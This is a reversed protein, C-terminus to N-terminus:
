NFYITDDALEAEAAEAALRDAERRTQKAEIVKVWRRADAEMDEYGTSRKFAFLASNEFKIGKKNRTIGLLLWARGPNDLDGKKIAYRIYKEANKWDEEQMYTQGLRLFLGGDESMEAAKKLPPIAKTWERASLWANALQEWNKEEDEIREAELEKELILAAKYPVEYYLYLQAIRLLESHKELMDKSYMIQQIYFSDDERKLEAYLAALQRYYTKKDPFRYVMAELLPLSEEYRDDFLLISLYIQYWNERPEAAQLVAIEAHPEAKRYFQREELSDKPTESAFYLYIQALLAHASPGPPNGMAEANDFWELLESLGKDWQDIALYLQAIGFQLDLQAQPELANYSLAEKLYKMSQPYDEKEAFVYGKLRVITAKEFDRLDPNRLLNNLIKLAKDGQEEGLAEQAKIFETGVKKSMTQTRRAKPPKKREKKAAYVEHLTIADFVIAVPLALSFILIFYIFKRSITSM